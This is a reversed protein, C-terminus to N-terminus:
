YVPINVSVQLRQLIAQAENQAAAQNPLKGLALGALAREYPMNLTQALEFAQTWAKAADNPKQAYYASWGQHLLARPQAFVFTKAYATLLKRYQAYMANLKNADTVTNAELVRVCVAPILAYLGFATPTRELQPKPLEASVQQLSQWAKASDGNSIAIMARTGHYLAKYTTSLEFEKQFHEAALREDQLTENANLPAIEGRIMQVKAWLMLSDFSNKTDDRRQSKQQAEEISTLAREFEGRHVYLWALIIRTADASPTWGAEDFMEIVQVLAPLTQDWRAFQFDNFGLLGIVQAKEVDNMEPISQALQRYRNSIGNLGLLGTTLALTAYSLGSNLDKEPRIPELFNLMMLGTYLMEGIKGQALYISQMLLMADALLLDHPQADRKALYQQPRVRHLTQQGLQRVMHGILSFNGPPLHPLSQLKLVEQYNVLANHYDGNGYYGSGLVNFRILQQEPKVTIRQDFQAATQVYEIAKNYNGYRMQLAARELYYVAKDAIDAETWHHALAPLHDGIEGYVTELAEGVQRQLGRYQASDRELEILLSERIKDHLFRWRNGEPELVASNAGLMAWQELDQDPFHHKLLTFDIERGIIAAIDLIRRASSPLLSLRKQIVAIIGGVMLNAPLPMEAIKRLEGANEALARLIEIVFLTNGATERELFALIQPSQGIQGLISVSLAAIQAQDFRELKMVQAQPIRTPLDPAEESRYAALILIPLKAILSSLRALLAISEQGAWQLDELLILMPRKQSLFLDLITTNLRELATTPPVEPADNITRNLLRELDPIVEKLIRLNIESPPQILVMWALVERWLQFPMGGEAIAQGRLVLLTDVLARVRIESLLRSKGVGSEGAILWTAGKSQKASELYDEIRVIEPERGVFSAAQLFSERIAITERPLAFGTAVNLDKLISEVDHYREAPDKDLLRELIPRLSPEILTYDPTKQLIEALLVNVSTIDFPYQEMLIEYFILGFAYLDSEISVGAGQLVEPALYALTGSTQSSGQRMYDISLALGFDLVKVQGEQTVLVNAPKLDRHIIKRQHLYDLAQLFQVALQIRVEFLQGHAAETIRKPKDLLDMTFYPQKQEDFGYDLVSVINPHRVGGLIRFENALAYEPTSRSDVSQQSSFLLKDPDSLVEKLAVRMGNLRDIAEYVAGMGGSGIRRLMQYRNGKYQTRQEVM